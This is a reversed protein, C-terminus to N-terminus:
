GSRTPIYETNFDWDSSRVKLRCESISWCGCIFGIFLTTRGYIGFVGGAVDHASVLRGKSGRGGRTAGDALIARAQFCLVTCIRRSFIGYPSLENLPAPNETVGFKLLRPEDWMRHAGRFPGTSFFVIGCLALATGPIEARIPYAIGARFLMGEAAPDRSRWWRTGFKEAPM